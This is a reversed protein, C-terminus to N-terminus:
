SAVHTKGSQCFEVYDIYSTITPNESCVPCDPDRRLSIETFKGELADFM